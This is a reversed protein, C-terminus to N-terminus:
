SSAFVFPYTIIAIGGGKLAPFQMQLFKNTMCSETPPHGLTSRSVTASSVSGDGAIVFRISVKGNLQPQKQLERSYCYRLYTLHHKVVKDVDAKDIGGMMTPTGEINLRAEAKTLKFDGGWEKGNGARRDGNGWPATGDGSAVGIGTCDASLCRGATLGGAGPAQTGHTGILHKIGATTAADLSSEALVDIGRFMEEVKDRAVQEDPNGPRPDRSPKTERPGQGGGAKPEGPDRAPASIPEPKPRYLELDVIRTMTDNRSTEPPPPVYAAVIGLVTALFGMTAAILVMPVDVDSTVPVPLRRSRWTTRAVFLSQGVEFVMVEDDDLRVRGAEARAHMDTRTDGQDIFGAWQPSLQAVWGQGDHTFVPFHDEPLLDVPVVFDDTMGIRVTDGRRYHRLDVINEGFVQAVELVQGASRDVPPSGQPRLLFALASESTDPSEDHVLAHM